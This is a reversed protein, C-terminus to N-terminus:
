RAHHVGPARWATVMGFFTQRAHHVGPPAWALRQRAHHVGPTRWATVMGVKTKRVGLCLRHGHWGKDQMTYAQHVGPPSLALRQKAHM